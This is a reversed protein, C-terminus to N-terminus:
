LEEEYAPEMHITIYKIRTDFKTLAGELADIQKHAEKLTLTGDMYVVGILKYYFGYKLLVIDEIDVIGDTELVIKEVKQKYEYNTEQGGIVYSLNEKLISFGVKIIFLGVIFAAVKDAYKFLPSIFTLQMLLASVLVVISSIVDTRSEKGSALLIQNEYEKGKKIIFNSLLFKCLITIFSVLAVLISPMMVKQTMSKEIISFGVIMIVMSIILSTIYEIKGHGYPHERDAPKRSLFSGVIAFVDTTLDSFSHIGDALLASSKLIFGFIVKLISLFVNTIISISMVKTVRNM